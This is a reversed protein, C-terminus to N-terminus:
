NTSGGRKKPLVILVYESSNEAVILVFNGLEHGRSYQALRKSRSCGVVSEEIEIERKLKLGLSCRNPKAGL